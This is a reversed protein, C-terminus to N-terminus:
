QTLHTVTYHSGSLQVEYNVPFEKPAKSTRQTLEIGTHSSKRETFEVQRASNTNDTDVVYSCLINAM